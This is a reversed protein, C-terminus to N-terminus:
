GPKPIVPLIVKQMRLEAKNVCVATIPTSLWEEPPYTPPVEAAIGGIVFETEEVELISDDADKLRFVGNSSIPAAPTNNEESTAGQAPCFALLPVLAATIYFAGCLAIVRKLNKSRM